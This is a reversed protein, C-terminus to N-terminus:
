FLAKESEEKAKLTICLKKNTIKIDVDINNLNIIYSELKSKDVSDIQLINGGSIIKIV